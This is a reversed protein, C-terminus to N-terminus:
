TFVLPSRNALPAFFLEALVIYSIYFEREDNHDSGYRCHLKLNYKENLWTIVAPVFLLISGPHNFRKLSAKHEPPTWLYKEALNFLECFILARTEKYHMQHKVKGGRPKFSPFLTAWSPSNHSQLYNCGRGPMTSASQHSIKERRVCCIPAHRCSAPDPSASSRRGDGGSPPPQCGGTQRLTHGRRLSSCLSSIM